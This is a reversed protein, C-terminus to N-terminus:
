GQGYGADEGHNDGDLYTPEHIEGVRNLRRMAFSKHFPNLVAPVNPWYHRAFMKELTVYDLKRADGALRAMRKVMFAISRHVGDSAYFMRTAVEPSALWKRNEDSMDCALEHLFGRLQAFGGELDFPYLRLTEPVRSRLQNNHTFLIQARPAGGYAVPIMLLDLMEKLADAAAAFTRAQGRDILHQVEDVCVFEVCCQTYLFKARDRLSDASGPGVQIQVAHLFARFISRRTPKSPIKVCVVPLRTVEDGHVPPNRLCYEKFVFSKGVGSVGFLRMSQPNDDVGSDAHCSALREMADQFALTEICIM